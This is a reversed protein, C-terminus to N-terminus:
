KEYGTLSPTDLRSPIGDRILKEVVKEASGETQLMVNILKGYANGAHHTLFEYSIKGSKQITRIRQMEDQVWNLAKPYAGAVYKGPELLVDFPIIRDTNHLEVEWRAWPDWAKGLQMGKEYARLMKGNERKGVYFSRGKGDPKVWNGKQECTPENGGSNFQRDIYMQLALDVSHIGDYDDVAGDWRSIRAGLKDRTFTILDTWDPVLHCAEGSLSLIGGQPGYAFIASSNGLKFSTPYFHLPRGQEVAPAFRDGLCNFVQVFFQSLDTTKFPFTCNFYDTIAAYAVGNPKPLPNSILVPRGNKAEFHYSEGSDPFEGELLSEGRIVLPPSFAEGEARAGGERAYVAATPSAPAIGTLLEDPKLKSTPM